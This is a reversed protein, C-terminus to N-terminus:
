GSGESHFEILHGQISEITCHISALSTVLADKPYTLQELDPYNLTDVQNERGRDIYSIACSIADDAFPYKLAIKEYPGTCPLCENSVYRYELDPTVERCLISTGVVPISDVPIHAVYIRTENLTSFLIM